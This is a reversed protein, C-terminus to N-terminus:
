RLRAVVLQYGTQERVQRWATAEAANEDLAATLRADAGPRLQAIRAEIPQYYAEWAAEPVPRDGLLDYGAADVQARLDDLGTVVSLDGGWFDMAAQTPPETFFCPASFAVIGGPKLAGVFARLGPKTGLMYLAGACWIADFPAEPLQHMEAMDGTRATVRPDGATREKAQAIFGDRKDIAVVRGQPVHTLLAAIDGGPGSAADCIVADPAIGALAMAWHVDDPVGPGERPLDQHVVFFMEWDM